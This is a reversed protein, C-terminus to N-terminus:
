LSIDLACMPASKKGSPSSHGLFQLVGRFPELPPTSPPLPAFWKKELSFQSVNKSFFSFSVFTKKLLFPWRKVEFVVFFSVSKKLFFRLKVGKERGYNKQLDRMKLDLSPSLNKSALSPADGM